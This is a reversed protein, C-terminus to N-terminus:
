PMDCHGTELGLVKTYAYYKGARTLTSDVNKDWWVWMKKQTDWEFDSNLTYFQHYPTANPAGIECLIKVKGIVPASEATVLHPILLFVFILCYKM